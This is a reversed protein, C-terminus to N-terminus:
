IKMRLFKQFNDFGVKKWFALGNSNSENVYLEIYLLGQEKFWKKVEAVLMKGVGKLRYNEDIFMFSIHGVRKINFWPFLYKIFGSLFGVV